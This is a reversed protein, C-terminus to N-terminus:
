KGGWSLIFKMLFDEAGKGYHQWIDKVVCLTETMVQEVIPNRLSHQKFEDLYKELDAISKWKGSIEAESHRDYVIYQALWLQLGQFDENKDLKEKHAQERVRNKISEDVEANQLNQIRQKTNGDIADFNWYKGIRM